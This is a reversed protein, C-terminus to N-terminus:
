SAGHGEGSVVDGVERGVFVSATCVATLGACTVVEGACEAVVYGAGVALFSLEEFSSCSGMNRVSGRVAGCRVCWGM